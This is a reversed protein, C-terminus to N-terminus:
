WRNGELDQEAGAAELDDEEPVIKPQPTRWWNRIERRVSLAIEKPMEEGVMNYYASVEDAGYQKFDPFEVDDVGVLTDRSSSFASDSSNVATTDDSPWGSMDSKTDACDQSNPSQCSYYFDWSGSQSENGCDDTATPACDESDWNQDLGVDEHGSQGSTNESESYPEDEVAKEEADTESETESTQCSVQVADADDKSNAEDDWFTGSAPIQQQEQAHDWIVMSDPNPLVKLKPHMSPSITECRVEWFNPYTLLIQSPLANNSTPQCDALSCRNSEELEGPELEVSAYEQNTCSTSKDHDREPLSLESLVNTIAARRQEERRRAYTDEDSPLQEDLFTDQLRRLVDDRTGGTLFQEVSIEAELAANPEGLVMLCRITRHAAGVVEEESQHHRHAARNRLDRGQSLCTSLLDGKDNPFSDQKATTGRYRRYAEEWIPMEGQEPETWGKEVLLGPHNRQTYRFISAEITSQLKTYLKTVSDIEAVSRLAKELADFLEDEGKSEVLSCVLHYIYKMEQERPRDGLLRPLSLGCELDIIAINRRHEAAHRIMETGKYVEGKTYPLDETFDGRDLRSDNEFVQRWRAMDMNQYSTGQQRARENYIAEFMLVLWNLFKHRLRFPLRLQPEEESMSAKRDLNCSEDDKTEGDLSCLCPCPAMPVRIKCPGPDRQNFLFVELDLQAQSRSIPEWQRLEERPIDIPKLRNGYYTPSTRRVPLM